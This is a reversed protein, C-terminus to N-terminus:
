ILAACPQALWGRQRVFAGTFTLAQMRKSQNDAKYGADRLQDKRHESRYEACPAAIKARRQDYQRDQEGAQEEAPDCPQAGVIMNALVVDADFAAQQAACCAGDGIIANLIDADFLFWEGSQEPQALDLKFGATAFAIIGLQAKNRQLFGAPQAFGDTRAFAPDSTACVSSASIGSAGGM